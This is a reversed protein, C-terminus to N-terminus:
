GREKVGKQRLDEVTAELEAVRRLLETSDAALPPPAEAMAGPPSMEPSPSPQKLRALPSLNPDNQWWTLGMEMAKDVSCIVLRVQITLLEVDVLKIKIDGAIVIGKELVRELVDALTATRTSQVISRSPTM